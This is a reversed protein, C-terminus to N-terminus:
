KEAKNVENEQCTDGAAYNQSATEYFQEFQQIM